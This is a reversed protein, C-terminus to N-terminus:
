RILDFGSWVALTRAVVVRVENIADAATTGLINMRRNLFGVDRRGEHM